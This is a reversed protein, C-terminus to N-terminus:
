PRWALIAVLRPASLVRQAGDDRARLLRGPGADRTVSEVQRREAPDASDTTIM